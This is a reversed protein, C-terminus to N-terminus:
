KTLRLTRVRRTDARRDRHAIPETRRKKRVTPQDMAFGDRDFWGGRIKHKHLPLSCAVITLRAGRAHEAVAEHCRLCIIKILKSKGRQRAAENFLAAGGEKPCEKGM